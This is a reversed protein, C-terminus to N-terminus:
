RIREALRPDIVGAAVDVAINALVVMLTILLVSAQLMPYDRETIGILVQQGVGPLLFIREIIVAGGFIASLELAGVTLFPVLANRLGHRFILVRASAGKAIATRAYDSDLVEIMTTRMIRLLVASSAAGLSLSPMMMGGLNRLPDKWLPVYGGVPLIRLGLALVLVLMTALWFSPVSAGLIGFVSIATDTKTHHLYAALLGFPLAILVAILGALATLELTVPLRSLLDPGIAIGNAFSRGFDGHVFGALWAFYQDVLPRDLGHEHNFAAIAAPTEAQGLFAVAASGPVVNILTFIAVSAALLTLLGTGTRYAVLKLV